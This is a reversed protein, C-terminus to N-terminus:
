SKLKKVAMKIDGVRNDGAEREIALTGEYGIEKLAALFGETGVEGTSWPVESGWNGPTDTAIADKIHVHKIWPALVGVAKKPDGMGYLIMNAPDFNVGVAPHALEELFDKLDEASEQGTEMLLTVGKEACADAMFRIREFFKQAYEPKSEDIFGAHTSLYKVKLAAAADVAKVFREKNIEWCEDPAIGGTARITELTTYDEQEFGIMASSITWGQKLVLDIYEGGNEGCALGVDLHIHEVDLDKLVVAIEPIDSQLSWSCIGVPWSGCKIM